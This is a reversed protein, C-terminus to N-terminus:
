VKEVKKKLDWNKTNEEKKKNWRNSKWHKWINLEKKGFELSKKKLRQNQLTWIGPLKQKKTQKERSFFPLFFLPFFNQCFNQVAPRTKTQLNSEITPDYDYNLIGLSSIDRAKFGKMIRAVTYNRPYIYWAFDLCILNCAIM